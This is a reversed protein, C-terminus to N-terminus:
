TRLWLNRVLTGVGRDKKKGGGNEPFDESLFVKCDGIFRLKMSLVM